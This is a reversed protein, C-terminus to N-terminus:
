ILSVLPDGSSVSEGKSVFIETVVADHQAVIENEMKLAELVLLVQGAKVAEGAAVPVNIIVGALPSRVTEGGDASPAAAAKPAGVAAEGNLVAVEYVAGDLTIKYNMVGSSEEGTEFTYKYKADLDVAKETGSILRVATINLKDITIGTEEATIAILAATLKNDSVDTDAEGEARTFIEPGGDATIEASKKTANRRFYIFAAIVLVLFLFIYFGQSSSAASAGTNLIAPM